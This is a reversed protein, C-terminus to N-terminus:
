PAHPPAALTEMFRIIASRDRHSLNLFRDRTGTSEGGHMIVAELLTTARGDHMYPGSDRVGWLPPTRWEQMVNTPEILIKMQNERIRVPRGRTPSPSKASSNNRNEKLIERSKGLTVFRLKEPQTAAEFIFSRMGRQPGQLRNLTDRSREPPQM